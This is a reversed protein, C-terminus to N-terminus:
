NLIALREQNEAVKYLSRVANEACGSIRKVTSEAKEPSYEDIDELLLFPLCRVQGGSIVLYVERKERLLVWEINPDIQSLIKTLPELLSKINAAIEEPQFLM